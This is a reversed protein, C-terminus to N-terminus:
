SPDRPVMWWECFDTCRGEDDFKLVFINDYQRKITKGDAEYYLSRGQTVATNGDVAIPTYGASYTGPKDRNEIWDAVIEERGRFGADYPNYRYVADQSFLAGIAKPDYSKWAAVYDQLWQNV